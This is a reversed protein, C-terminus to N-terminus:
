GALKKFMPRLRNILVICLVSKLFDGPLFPLICVSVAALINQTDLVFMYWLIGPVYTCLWGLAIACSISKASHGFREMFAGAVFACLIYGFIFGGTPGLLVGIGGRFGSFIPLGVAGLLVFVVQSLTGWKKGLLGAALFISIHVFGIPVTGIPITFPSLVASTAAFIACFTLRFTHSKKM